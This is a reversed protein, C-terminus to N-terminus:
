KKAEWENLLQEFVLYPSFGAGAQASISFGAAAKHGNGGHARALAQCDFGTHSRTSFQLQLEGGSMRYHFGVVIDPQSPGVQEHLTKEVDKEILEAADSTTSVGQFMVVETGKVSQFYLAEDIAHRASELQREFLREDVSCRSGLCGGHLGFHLEMDEFRWFVLEAAQECAERWSPDDKKWTDRVAALRAFNGVSSVNMMRYDSEANARVIPAWVHEYALWAGSELRENEGFIGLEGYPEVVDRSHHDLVIVGAERWRKILEERLALERLALVGKDTLEFSLGGDVVAARPDALKPLWPSFDCFLMGPAPDILRHEETGYHVFSVRVDPLADKIILASAIGDPCNAHTILHTISRLKDLLIM